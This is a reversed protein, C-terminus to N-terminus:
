LGLNRKIAKSVKAMEAGQSRQCTKCASGNIGDNRAYARRQADTMGSGGGRYYHLVLPPDHEPVPAHATGTTMTVGCEPCPQGEGAARAARGGPGDTQSGGYHKARSYAETATVPNELDTAIGSSDVEFRASGCNHVLLPVTGALVYYTHADSVTLNHVTAQQTWRKVATIQIRTGASTRLWQGPELDTADIWEGLEPVWFPHGDTATVSATRDGKEGDIDVTVKVLHKADKGTIEATVERAATEGTEPDTALVKDGIDVDEIARTSGDAMLVATGPVFSNPTPCSGAAAAADEFRDAERGKKAWTTFGSIIKGLLGWVRAGLALGKEWNWPVGYKVALKSVLGGAFTTAINVITAGCAGLSGTTFCDLADTIGLEDAAIKAIEKAAMVARRKAANAAARARDAKQQAPSNVQAWYQHFSQSRWLLARQYSAPDRKIRNQLVQANGYGLGTADDYIMLGTPDSFSVPNNNSYAYGNIQQPDTFDILPDASIFRGNEPEYERAGIHTLGTSKDVPKGLFGKDDVWPQSANGREAGFPDMRRRTTEGTAADIAIEATGHHDSALFRVGDGTRMAVTRDGFSYYRTGTIAKTTADLRLEMGPLYFTTADPEKRLIRDGAADYAFASEQTGQVARTLRGEANWDLDQTNGDLVRRDTNGVEDYAFTDQSRVAPGQGGAATDQVVKTLMHPGGDGAEGPTGDQDQDGYFYTRTIDGAGGVGHITQRSRNGAADYSFSHWYAAAGGITSASPGGACAANTRGSGVAGDSTNSTSWAEALRRQWDYTFCQTDTQGGTPTDAVATVNGAQDYTYRADYTGASAGERVVQSRTLRDTGREYEYRLWVKKDTPGGTTLELEELQSITTYRAANVYTTGLSTRTRTVRQLDDYVHSVTEAPLGGAAPIETSHLTGDRNYQFGYEYTGNLEPAATGTLNHRIRTPQYMEDLESIITSSQVAGDAYRYTGYLKGKALRDYTSVTLKTGTDPEGEWTSLTRGIADYKTSIKKGRADTTSILRDLVDYAYRTTGTDPDDAEIKRGLQDYTYTWTNGAQDRVTKLQGAPTHAYRVAEYDAATGGPLPEDGKYRRVEKTRGRADTIATTPAQGAPPDTHVRDGGHTYTTRWKEEGAVRFIEATKRGAGDYEIVTQAGVGGESPDFLQDQPEQTTYYDTNTKKIAGLGNYFTDAIMRGGDPGETQEQRPRLLGDYLTYETNYTNDNRIKQTRVAVPADKRVLYDYKISPTFDSAKPRDPLWVSALRGLADYALDTRKGNNDVQATPLGWAPAYETVTTWGLPNTEAKKATLGDTEEYDITTSTGAADTVKTPRGYADFDTTASQTVTRYTPTTGDHSALKQVKTTDGKTPAEGLGKGDYFTLDDSIVQTKRDVTTDCSVAVKEVRSVAELIHLGDNDAYSTRTCQNDGAVGVEGYDDTETLRGHETDYRNTSKTQQRGGGELMTYTTTTGPRVYWARTTGWSRARTATNHKWATNISKTTVRDATYAGNYTITEIEFGSLEEPDSHTDGESDTVPDGIGRLFTHETRTNSPSDTGDSKTVRVKGYGRWDSRTRYEGDTIGDPKPTKWGAGGLYTYDTVMDPAGGTLDTETVRDVVYKHFWDTVPEEEGPPNWKVPYCRRTSSDAAPLTSESCDAPAYSVSLHGGTDNEVGVLRVRNMPQINDGTKDVRNPLKRGHIKVSPMSASSSGVHGTHDITNLWLTRSGDGNDTFEHTFKWSDVTSYGTGSRIQTTVSNLKKRTWFTPSNQGPCKSDAKCNRDWPVDPWRSATADTLDGPECEEATGMCREGTSFVVRAPAATSHVQEHRQGYDIRKLYGGRIYPKGNETTKLGQTYYNTERGYYFSMVNGHTDKVYDLNWRWAQNCYAEAFTAKYCPEGEDDGYVPVTWTSSTEEDGSTWGPLRDLGFHYETGDTTTIRWHEGNDDENAGDTLLEVKSDDDSSIRWKKTTDDLVLEGSPGGAIQITANHHAWCQDGNTEAHGDDACAKYRREIFGPEYGFGQGIWSGQNNTTATQGDVSQSNYGFAVPPVLGGPVPPTRLPYNWNFAGSSNSVSWEASPSLPTAGYSGQDSGEDATAALLMGAGSPAARDATLQTRHGKASPAVPVDATLTRAETDNTGDLERPTSCKKKEPTNLLCGPYQVLRLRSGYGGGYADAFGSYDLQLRASGQENRSDARTVRLLVGDIGAADTKKRSVVEVTVSDPTSNATTGKKPPGVKLPLRDAEEPKRGIRIRETGAGPWEAEAPAKAWAKEVPNTKRPKYTANEGRVPEDYNRLESRGLDDAESQPVYQPLLGVTLAVGLAIIM